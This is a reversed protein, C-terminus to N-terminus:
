LRIAVGSDWNSYPTKEDVLRVIKSPLDLGRIKKAGWEAYTDPSLQFYADGKKTVLVRMGGHDIITKIIENPNGGMKAHFAMAGINLMRCFMDANNRAITVHNPGHFLIGHSMMWYNGDLEREKTFEKASDLLDEKSVEKWAWRVSEFLVNGEEESLETKIYRPTPMGDVVKQVNKSFEGRLSHLKLSEVYAAIEDNDYPVRGATKIQKNTNAMNPNKMIENQKEQEKRKQRAIAKTVDSEMENLMKVSDNESIVSDMLRTVEDDYITLKQEYEQIAENFEDELLIKQLEGQESFSESMFDSEVPEVPYEAEISQSVWDEANEELANITKDMYEQIAQRLDELGGHEEVYLLLGQFNNDAKQLDFYRPTKSLREVDQISAILSETDVKLDYVKTKVGYDSFTSLIEELEDYDYSNTYEGYLKKGLDQISKFWEAIKAKYPPIPEDNEKGQIQVVAFEEQDKTLPETEITAHPLNKPDRLSFISSHGSRVARAYGGVCHGMLGGETDLDDASLEVITWDDAFKYVINNTVYGETAEQDKLEEHWLNTEQIATPLDISTINTKHAEAWEFVKRLNETSAVLWNRFVDLGVESVRMQKIAERALWFSYKDNRSPSVRRSMDIAWDVVDAPWKAQEIMYQRKDALVLIDM